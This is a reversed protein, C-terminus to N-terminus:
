RMSGRAVVEKQRAWQGGKAAAQRPRQRGHSSRNGGTMAAGKKDEIQLFAELGFRLNLGQLLVLVLWMGQIVVGGSTM